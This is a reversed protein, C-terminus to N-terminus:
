GGINGRWVGPGPGLARSCRGYLHKTPESTHRHAFPNERSTHTSEWLIALRCLLSEVPHRTGPISGRQADRRRCPSGVSPVSCLPCLPRAPQGMRPPSQPFRLAPFQSLLMFPCGLRDATSMCHASESPHSPCGPRGGTRPVRGSLLHENSARM